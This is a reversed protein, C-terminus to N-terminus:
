KNIEQTIGSNNRRLRHPPRRSTWTSPTAAGPQHWQGCQRHRSFNGRTRRRGAAPSPTRRSRRRAPPTSFLKRSNEASWCSPIPNEQKKTARQRTDLSSDGSLGGPESSATVGSSPLELSPLREHVSSFDSPVFEPSLEADAGVASSVARYRRLYAQWSTDEGGSSIDNTERNRRADRLRSLSPAFLELTSPLVVDTLDLVCLKITGHLPVHAFAKFQRRSAEDQTFTVIEEVPAEVVVAIPMQRTKADERLM